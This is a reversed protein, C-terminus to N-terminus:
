QKFSSTPRCLAKSLSIPYTKLLFILESLTEIELMNQFALNQILEFPELSLYLYLSPTPAGVLRAISKAFLNSM